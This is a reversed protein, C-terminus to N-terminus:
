HCNQQTTHLLNEHEVLSTPLPVSPFVFCLFGWVMVMSGLLQQVAPLARSTTTVGVEWGQRERWVVGWPGDLKQSWSIDELAPSIGWHKLLSDARGSTRLELGLFWRYHSRISEEVSLSLASVYMFYIFRSLFVSLCVSLFFVSL